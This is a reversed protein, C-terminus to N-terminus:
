RSRMAGMVSLRCFSVLRNVLLLFTFSLRGQEYYAFELKTGNCFKLWESGNPDGLRYSMYVEGDRFLGDMKFWSKKRYKGEGIWTSKLSAWNNLHEFVVSTDGCLRLLAPSRLPRELVADRTLKLFSNESASYAIKKENYANEILFIVAWVLVILLGPHGHTIEIKDVCEDIYRSRPMDELYGSVPDHKLTFPSHNLIGDKKLRPLLTSHNPLAIIYCVTLKHPVLFNCDSDEITSAQKSAQKSTEIAGNYKSLPPKQQWSSSSDIKQPDPVFNTTISKAVNSSKKPIATAPIAPTVLPDVSKSVAEAAIPLNETTGSLEDVQIQQPPAPSNRQSGPPHTIRETLQQSIDFPDPASVTHQIDVSGANKLSQADNKSLGGESTGYKATLTGSGSFIVLPAKDSHSPRINSKQNAHFNLNM